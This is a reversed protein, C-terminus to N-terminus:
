GSDSMTLEGLKRLGLAYREILEDRRCCGLLEGRQRGLLIQLLARM